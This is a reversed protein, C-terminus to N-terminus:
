AGLSQSTNTLQGSPHVSLYDRSERGRKQSPNICLISRGEVHFASKPWMLLSGSRKQRRQFEGGWLVGVLQADLISSEMRTQREDM